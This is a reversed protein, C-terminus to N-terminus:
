VPEASQWLGIAGGLGYSLRLLLALCVAGYIM